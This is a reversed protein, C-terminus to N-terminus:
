ESSNRMFRRWRASSILALTLTFITGGRTNKIKGARITTINPGASIVTTLTNSGDMLHVAATRRFCPLSPHILNFPSFVISVIIRNTEPNKATKTSPM